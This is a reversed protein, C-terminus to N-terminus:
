GPAGADELLCLESLVYMHCVPPFFGLLNEAAEKDEKFLLTQRGAAQQIRRGGGPQPARHSCTASPLLIRLLSPDFGPETVRSPSILQSHCSVEVGLAVWLWAAAAGFYCTLPCM